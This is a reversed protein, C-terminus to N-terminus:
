ESDGSNDHFFGNASATCLFDSRRAPALIM